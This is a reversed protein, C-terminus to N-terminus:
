GHGHGLGSFEVLWHVAGFVVGGLILWLPARKLQLASPLLQVLAVFLLIGGAFPALFPSPAGLMIPILQGLLFAGGMILLVSRAGKLSAGTSLAFAGSLLAEPVMHFLVGIFLPWEMEPHTLRISSLAIGDFLSCVVFCSIASCAASHSLHDPHTHQHLHAHEHSHDCAVAEPNTAHHHHADSSHTLDVRVSVDGPPPVLREVWGLYPTIYREFLAVSALGALLTFFYQEISGALAGMSRPLVELFLNSILFGSGIAVLVRLSSAKLRTRTARFVLLAVLTVAVSISLTFFLFTM